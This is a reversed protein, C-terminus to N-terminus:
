APPTAGYRGPLNEGVIFKEISEGSLQHELAIKPKAM